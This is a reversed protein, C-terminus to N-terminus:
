QTKTKFSKYCSPSCARFLYPLNEIYFSRKRPQILHLGSGFLPGKCSDCISAKSLKSQVEDPVNIYHQHLNSKTFSLAALDILHQPQNQKNEEWLLPHMYNNHVRIHKLPVELLGTPLSGLENGEVNLFQLQRLNRIDNPIFSIKNYAVNLSQLHTLLFLGIPLVSVICFSIDFIRLNTLKEIDPSIETIPNDRLNLLELCSLQYIETPIDRFSNFSLNLDKLTSVLRTMDPLRLNLSEGGVAMSKVVVYEYPSIQGEQEEEKIPSESNPIELSQAGDDINLIAPLEPSVEYNLGESKNRAAANMELIQQRQPIRKLVPPIDDISLEVINVKKQNHKLLRSELLTVIKNFNQHSLVIKREDLPPPSVSNKQLFNALTFAAPICYRIDDEAFYPDYRHVIGRRSSFGNLDSSRCTMSVDKMEHEDISDCKKKFVAAPCSANEFSLTDKPPLPRRLLQPCKSM